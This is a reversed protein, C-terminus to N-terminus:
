GMHMTYNVSFVSNNPNHTACGDKPTCIKITITIITRICKQKYRKGTRLHCSTDWTSHEKRVQFKLTNVTYDLHRKLAMSYPCKQQLQAMTRESCTYETDATHKSTVPDVKEKKKPFGRRVM